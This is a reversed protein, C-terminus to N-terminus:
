NGWDSGFGRQYSTSPDVYHRIIACPRDNIIISDSIRIDISSSNCNQSWGLLDGATPPLIFRVGNERYYDSVSVNMGSVIQKNLNNVSKEVNNISSYFLIGFIPDYILDGGNGTNYITGEGVDAAAIAKQAAEIDAQNQAKEVSDDGFLKSIQSKFDEAKEENMSCLAMMAAQKRVDLTHAGFICGLTVGATVIVPLAAPVLKKTYEWVLRNRGDKDEPSIDCIDKHMSNVLEICKPAAKATAVITSVVGVAAIGTLIGSKNNSAFSLAAKGFTKVSGWISM